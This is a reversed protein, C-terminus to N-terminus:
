TRGPNSARGTRLMHTEYTDGGPGDLLLQISYVTTKGFAELVPQGMPSARCRVVPLVLFGISKPASGGSTFEPRIYEPGPGAVRSAAEASHSSNATSICRAALLHSDTTASNIPPDHVPEDDIAMVAATIGYAPHILDVAACQSSTALM